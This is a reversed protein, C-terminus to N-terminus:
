IAQRDYTDRINERLGLGDLINPKRIIIGKEIEIEDVNM